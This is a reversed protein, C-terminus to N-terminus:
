HSLRTTHPPLPPQPAAHPPSSDLSFAGPTPSARWVVVTGSDCYIAASQGSDSNLRGDTFVLNPNGNCWAGVTVASGNTIDLDEVAFQGSTEHDIKYYIVTPFSNYYVDGGVDRVRLSATTGSVNLDVRIIVMDGAAFTMTPTTRVNGKNLTGNLSSINGCTSTVALVRQSPQAIFLSACILALIVVVQFKKMRRKESLGSRSNYNM